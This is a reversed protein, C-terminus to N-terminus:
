GVPVFKSGDWKMRRTAAGQPPRTRDSAPPVGGEEGSPSTGQAGPAAAGFRDDWLGEQELQARIQRQAYPSLLGVRRQLDRESIRVLNGAKQLVVSLLDSEMPVNGQALAGEHKAVAMGARSFTETKVLTRINILAQVEQPTLGYGGAQSLQALTIRGAVPGLKAAITQATKQVDQAGSRLESLKAIRDSTTADVYPKNDQLDGRREEALRELQYKAQDLSLKAQAREANTQAIAIRAEAQKVALELKDRDLEPKLQSNTTQAQTYALDAEAKAGTRATEDASLKATLRARKDSLNLPVPGADSPSDGGLGSTADAQLVQARRGVQRENIADKAGTMQVGHLEAARREAARRALAEEIKLRWDPGLTANNHNQLAGQGVASLIAKIDM